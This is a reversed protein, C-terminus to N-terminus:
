IKNQKKKPQFIMQFRRYFFLVEINKRLNTKNEDAKKKDSENEKQTKDGALLKAKNTIEELKKIEEKLKEALEETKKSTKISIEKEEKIIKNGDNEGLKENEIRQKFKPYQSYQSGQYHPVKPYNYSLPNPTSRANGGGYNMMFQSGLVPQNMGMYPFYPNVAFPNNVYGVYPNINNWMSKMNTRYFDDGAVISNDDEVESPYVEVQM